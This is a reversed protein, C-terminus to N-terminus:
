KMLIMKHTQINSGQQLQYFYIGSSLRSANFDIKYSQGPAAQGNFLSAVEQGLSNFVKLTTFGSKDVTFEIATEPNFPNPYNQGLSFVSPVTNVNVQVINSYKSTGDFDIQKLRYYYNGNSLNNDSFTYVSKETTTGNGKVFAITYFAKADACREVEFGSNNLETATEWSLIVSKQAAKATFSTLEVPVTGAPLFDTIFRPLLQYGGIGTSAYQSGVGIVDAPWTPEPSSNLGMDSDIYVTLTDKGDTLKLTASSKSTPWTGSLKTLRTFGVLHSEYNEGNTNFNGITIIEPKPLAANSGALIINADSLPQIETLGNYLLIKGTVVVSDGMKLDPSTLGYSFLDLGGTGDWMYYSRNVTQYNPSFVVGTVTVTDNVMGRAVGISVKPYTVASSTNGGIYVAQTFVYKSTSPSGDYWPYVRFYLSQGDKVSVNVHYGYHQLSDRYPVVGTDAPNLLTRTAFTPDTSFYLNARIHATTGGAGLWISISDVNFSNGSKPTAAFQIWRNENKGTENGWSVATGNISPYWRMSKTVGPLPSNPASGTMDKIALTDGHSVTQGSINGVTTTPSLSDAGFLNWTASAPTQGFVTLASVGFIFVLLLSSIFLRTKM